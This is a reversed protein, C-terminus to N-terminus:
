TEDTHHTIASSRADAFRYFERRSDAEARSTQTHTRAKRKSCAKFLTCMRKPMDHCASILMLMCCRLFQVYQEIKYGIYGKSKLERMHEGGDANIYYCLPTRPADGRRLLLLHRRAAPSVGRYLLHHLM